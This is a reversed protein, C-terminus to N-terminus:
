IKKGRDEDKNLHKPPKEQGENMSTLILHARKNGIKGRKSDANEDKSEKAKAQTGM